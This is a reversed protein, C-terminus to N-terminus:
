KESLIVCTQTQVSVELLSVEIAVEAEVTTERFRIHLGPLGPIIIEQDQNESVVDADGDTEQFQPHYSFKVPGGTLCLAQLRPIFSHM